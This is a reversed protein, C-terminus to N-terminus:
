KPFWVLIGAMDRGGAGVGLLRVKLYKIVYAHLTPM